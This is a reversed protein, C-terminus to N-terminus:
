CENRNTPCSQAKQCPHSVTGVPGRAPFVTTGVTFDFPVSAKLNNIQSQALAFGAGLTIMAAMRLAMKSIANM